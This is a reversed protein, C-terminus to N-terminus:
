CDVASVMISLVRSKSLTPNAGVFSNLLPNVTGGTQSSRFRDMNTELSLIRVRVVCVLTVLVLIQPSVM